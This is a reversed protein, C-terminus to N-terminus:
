KIGEYGEDKVLIKINDGDTDIEELHSKMKLKQALTNHANRTQGLIAVHGAWRM